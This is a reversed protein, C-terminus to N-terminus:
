SSDSFADVMSSSLVMSLSDITPGEALKLLEKAILSERRTNRQNQHVGCAGALRAMLATLM